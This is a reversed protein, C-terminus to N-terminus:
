RVRTTNGSGMIQTVSGSTNMASQTQTVEPAAAEILPLLEAKLAADETLLKKIQLRLAAQADADDPAKEVEALAEVVAPKGFRDKVFQYVKQCAVDVGGKAKAVLVAEVVKQALTAIAIEIM